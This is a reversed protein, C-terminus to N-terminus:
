LSTFSSTVRDYVTTARDEIDPDYWTSIEYSTGHARFGLLRVHWPRGKATVTYEWVVAPTGRFTSKELRIRQYNLGNRRVQEAQRWQQLLDGQAPTANAVIEQTRDPSTYHVEAGSQAVREWDRPPVWAYLGAETRAGAPLSPPRSTGAVTPSPSSVVTHPVSASAAASASSSADQTRGDGAGGVAVVTGVVGGVVVVGV